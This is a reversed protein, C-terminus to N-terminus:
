WRRSLSWSPPSIGAGASSAGSTMPWVSSTRACARLLHLQQIWSRSMAIVGAMSRRPMCCRGRHPLPRPARANNRVGGRRNRSWDRCSRGPRLKGTEGDARPRGTPAAAAVSEISRDRKRRKFNRQQLNQGLGVHGLKGLLVYLQQAFEAGQEILGVAELIEVRRMSEPMMEAPERVSPMARRTSRDDRLEPWARAKCHRTRRGNGRGTQPAGGVLDPIERASEFFEAAANQAGDVADFDGDLM